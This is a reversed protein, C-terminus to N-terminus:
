HAGADEGGNQQHREDSHGDGPERGKEHLAVADHALDVVQKEGVDFRRSENHRPLRVGDGGLGDALLRGVPDGEGGGRFRQLRYQRPHDRPAVLAREADDPALGGEHGADVDGEVEFVVGAENPADHVFSGVAAHV